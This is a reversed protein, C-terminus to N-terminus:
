KLGLQNTEAILQKGTKKAEPSSPTLTTQPSLVTKASIPANISTATATPTAQTSAITAKSPTSTTASQITAPASTSRGSSLSSQITSTAPTTAKPTATVARGAEIYDRRASGTLGQTNAQQILDKGTM